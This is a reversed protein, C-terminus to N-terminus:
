VPNSEKTLDKKVPHTKKSSKGSNEFRYVNKNLLTLTNSTIPDPIITNQTGFIM